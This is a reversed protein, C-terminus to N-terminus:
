SPPQFDSFDLNKLPVLPTTSLLRPTWFKGVIASDRVSISIFLM